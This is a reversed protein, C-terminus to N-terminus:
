IRYQGNDSERRQKLLASYRQLTRRQRTNLSAEGKEHVQQLIEEGQTILQAEASPEDEVM